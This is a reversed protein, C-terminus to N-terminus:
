CPVQFQCGPIPSEKQFGDNKPEMNFKPLTNSIATIRPLQSFMISKARPTVTEAFHGACQFLSLHWSQVANDRLLVKKHLWGFLNKQIKYIIMSWLEPRPPKTSPLTSSLPDTVGKALSHFVQLRLLLWRSGDGRDAWINWLVKPSTKQSHHSHHSHCAHPHKPLIKTLM